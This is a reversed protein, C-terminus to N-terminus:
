TVYLGNRVIVARRWFWSRRVAGGLLVSASGASGLSPARPEGVDRGAEGRTGALAWRLCGVGCGFLALYGDWLRVWGFISDQLVRGPVVSVARVSGRRRLRALSPDQLHQPPQRRGGPLYSCRHLPRM